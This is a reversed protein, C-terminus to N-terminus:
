NQSNRTLIAVAIGFAVSVNLSEKQGKRPIEMIYDALDLVKKNVGSVENGVILASQRLSSASKRPFNNISISRKNQELALIEYDEAKLKKVLKLTSYCSKIQLNKEAGLSTKKVEKHWQGAGHKVRTRPEFGPTIGCLYIEHLGFFEATRLIAGVNYGSRINDLVIIVRIYVFKNM